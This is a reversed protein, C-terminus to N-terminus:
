RYVRGRYECSENANPFLEQWGGEYNELFDVPPNGGPPRLGAPTKMLFQIGSPKHIFEALDAGKRPLVALKLDDNEMWLCTHGNLNELTIM